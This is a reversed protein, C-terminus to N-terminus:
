RRSPDAMAVRVATAAWRMQTIARPAPTPTRAVQAAMVAMAPSCGANGGNGGNTAASVLTGDQNYVANVGAAGNGGNGGLWGANGGNGGNAGAGGNGFLLGGNGGNCAAGVCDSAADVGNGVLWGNVGVATALVSKSADAKVLSAASPASSCGPDAVGGKTECSVLRIENVQVSQASVATPEDLVTAAAAAALAFLGVLAAGAVGDDDRAESHFANRGQSIRGEREYM